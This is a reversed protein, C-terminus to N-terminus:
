YPTRGPKLGFDPQLAELLRQWGFTKAAKRKCCQLLPLQSWNVSYVHPILILANLKWPVTPSIGLNTCFRNSNALVTVKQM